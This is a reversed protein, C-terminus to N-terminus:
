LGPPPTLVAPTPPGSVLLLLLMIRLSGNMLLELGSVDIDSNLLLPKGVCRPWFGRTCALGPVNMSNAEGMKGVKRGARIMVHWHKRNEAMDTTMQNRAMDEKM